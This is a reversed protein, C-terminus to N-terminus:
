EPSCGTLAGKGMKQVELSIGVRTIIRREVYPQVGEEVSVQHVVFMSRAKKTQCFQEQAGRSNRGLMSWKDPERNLATM